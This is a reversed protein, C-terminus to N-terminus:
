NLPFSHPRVAYAMLALGLSILAIIGERQKETLKVAVGLRGLACVM